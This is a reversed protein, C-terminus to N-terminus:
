CFNRWTISRIMQWVSCFNSTKHCNQMPITFNIIVDKNLLFHTRRQNFFHFSAHANVVFPIIIIQNNSSNRIIVVRSKFFPISQKFTITSHTRRSAVSIICFKRNPSSSVNIKITCLWHFFFFISNNIRFVFNFNRIFFFVSFNCKFCIKIIKNTACFTFKKFCIINSHSKFRFM